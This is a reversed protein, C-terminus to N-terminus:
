DKNIKLKVCNSNLIWRNKYYDSESDDLNLTLASTSKSEGKIVKKINM